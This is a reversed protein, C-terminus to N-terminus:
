LLSSDRSPVAGKFPTFVAAVSEVDNLVRGDFEVWAHAELAGNVNRAGFRITTDIGERRLLWWLTLSRQLCNARFPGRRAVADVLRAAERAKVYHKETRRSPPPLRAALFRQWKRCGLARVLAATLPLMVLARATLRRQRPELQLFRKLYRILGRILSRSQKHDM